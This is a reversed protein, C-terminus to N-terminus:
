FCDAEPNKEKFILSAREPGITHSSSPGRGIRYLERISAMPRDKGLSLAEPYGADAFMRDASVRLVKCLRGMTEISPVSIGSEWKSVARNSVGVLKGLESQTLNNKKRLKYITESFNDKNM